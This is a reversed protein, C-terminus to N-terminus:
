NLPLAAAIVVLHNEYPSGANYNGGACYLSEAKGDNAGIPLYLYYANSLLHM